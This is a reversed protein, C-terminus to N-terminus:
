SSRQEGTFGSASQGNPMKILSFHEIMMRAAAAPDKKEIELYINEHSRYSSGYSTLLQVTEKRSELLMQSLMEIMTAMVGNRAAQVICSHFIPEDRCWAEPDGM